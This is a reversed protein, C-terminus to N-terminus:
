RSRRRRVASLFQPMRGRARHAPEGGRNVRESRAARRVLGAAVVFAPRNLTQPLGGIGGPRGTYVPMSLMDALLADFGPLEACGGTLVLAAPRFDRSSAGQLRAVLADGLEMASARIISALLRKPTVEEVQTLPRLDVLVDDPITEAACHGDRCKLAEAIEVPLQLADVIARTIRGGGFPLVETHYVSGDALLAISMTEAGIDVVAVSSRITVQALAGDVAAIPAAYFGYPHVGARELSKTLNTMITTTGTITHVEAELTAGSMGRPDHIRPQGDLVYGCPLQHVIEVNPGISLSATAASIAHAVDAGTVERDPAVIGAHGRTNHGQLHAGSLSVYAGAIPRGYWTDACDLLDHIASATAAIDVVVGNHLGHAPVQAGGMLALEGDDGASVMVIAAKSSGIDIGVIVNEEEGDM